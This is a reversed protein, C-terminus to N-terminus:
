DNEVGMARRAEAVLEKRRELSPIEREEKPEPGRELVAIMQLRPGVLAKCRKEMEEWTPWFGYTQGAVDRAVDAPYQALKAAYTTLRLEETFADDKRKAVTVSLAALWAEIDRLPAPTLFNRLDALAAAHDGDPSVACGVAVMYSPKGEPFRGEYRVRLGVGHRLARSVAAKDMDAPRQKSLWAAVQSSEPTALGRGGHPMGIESGAGEQPTIIASGIPKM